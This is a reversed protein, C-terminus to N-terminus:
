QALDLFMGIKIGKRLNILTVRPGVQRQHINNSVICKLFHHMKM